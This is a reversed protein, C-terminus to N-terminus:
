RKHRRNHWLSHGASFPRGGYLYDRIQEVQQRLERTLPM